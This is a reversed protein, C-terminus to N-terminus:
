EVEVEVRNRESAPRKLPFRAVQVEQAAVEVVAGHVAEVSKRRVWGVDAVATKLKKV